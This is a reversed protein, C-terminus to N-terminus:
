AARLLVVTINDPGGRSRASAILEKGKAELSAQSALAKSLEDDSVVGHLGDSCLMVLM